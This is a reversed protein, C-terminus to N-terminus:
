AKFDDVDMTRARSEEANAEKLINIVLEKMDFDEPIAQLYYFLM